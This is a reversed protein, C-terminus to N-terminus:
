SSRNAQERWYRAATERDKAIQAQLADLSHFKMEPRLFCFFEVTVTKGYLDGAFDLLHTEALVGAGDGITPRCGVNCVGFLTQGDAKVRVAYVGKKPKVYEEPFIQNITPFGIKSGIRNGHAVPFRISFPRGLLLAAEEPRGEQLLARIRTSSVPEGLLTVAPSVIVQVGRKKLYERLFDADGAGNKGFRFNFGCFVFKAQLTDLLIRDCFEQPSFDRVREFDEWVVRTIGAEALLEEKDARSLINGSAFNGKLIHEPHRRFTWVVAPLREDKACKICADLIARHGRHIGDFNGLAVACRTNNEATGCPM